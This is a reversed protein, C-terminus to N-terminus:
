PDALHYTPSPPIGKLWVFNSTLDTVFLFMAVTGPRGARHIRPTIGLCHKGWPQGPWLSKTRLEVAWTSQTHDHWLEPFDLSSASERGSVRLPAGELALVRGGTTMGSGRFPGPGGVNGPRRSSLPGSEWSSVLLCLIMGLKEALCVAPFLPWGPNKSLM